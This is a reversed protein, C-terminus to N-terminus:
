SPVQLALVPGHARDVEGGLLLTHEVGPVLVIGEVALELEGLVVRRIDEVVTRGKRGSGRVIAM